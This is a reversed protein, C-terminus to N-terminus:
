FPIQNSYDFQIQYKGDKITHAGGNDSFVQLHIGYSLTVWRRIRTIRFEEM